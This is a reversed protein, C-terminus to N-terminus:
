ATAVAPPRSPARREGAAARVAALLEESGADKLIVGVAGAELAQAIRARDCFATMVVVPAGTIRRTAEIGDMGPMSLDILAVDPLYAASLEVAAAGHAGTAIVEVDAAADLLQVLGERCVAHDDVVLVRIPGTTRHAAAHSVKVITSRLPDRDCDSM